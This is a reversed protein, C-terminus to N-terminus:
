PLRSRLSRVLARACRACSLFPSCRFLYDPPACRGFLLLRHVRFRSVRGSRLPSPAFASVRAGCARGFPLPLAVARCCGVSFFTARAALPALRFSRVLSRLSRTRGCPRARAVLSPPFPCAWFLWWGWPPATLCPSCPSVRLM